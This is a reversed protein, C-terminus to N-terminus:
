KITFVIDGNTNRKMFGAVNINVTAVYTNGLVLEKQVTGEFVDINGDEDSDIGKLRYRDISLETMYGTIFGMYTVSSVDLRVNTSVVNGAKDYNYTLTGGKAFGPNGMSENKTGTKFLTANVNQKAPAAALGTVGMAMVMTAAMVVAALKKIARKM